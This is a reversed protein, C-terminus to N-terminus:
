KLTVFTSSLFHHFSKNSSSFSLKLKSEKLLSDVISNYNRHARCCQRVLPASNFSAYIKSIENLSPFNSVFNSNANSWERIIHLTIQSKNEETSNKFSINEVFHHYFQKDLALDNLVLKVLFGSVLCCLFLSLEKPKTTKCFFSHFVNIELDSFNFIRTIHVLIVCYTLKIKNNFDGSKLKFQSNSDEIDLEKNEKLFEIKDKNEKFFNLISDSFDNLNLKKVLIEIRSLQSHTIAFLNKTLYDKENIKDSLKLKTKTTFFDNVEKEKRENNMEKEIELDLISLYDKEETKLEVKENKKTYCNLIKDLAIKTEKKQKEKEKEKIANIITQKLNNSNYNNVEPFKYENNIINKPISFIEELAKMCKENSHLNLNIPHFIFKSKATNKVYCERTPFFKHKFRPHFLEDLLENTSSLLVDDEKENLIKKNLILVKLAAKASSYNMAGQHHFDRVNFNSLKIIKTKSSPLVSNFNSMKSPKHEVLELENLKSEIFPKM